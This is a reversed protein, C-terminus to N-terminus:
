PSIHHSTAPNAAPRRVEYFPQYHITADPFRTRIRGGYQGALRRILDFEWNRKEKKFWNSVFEAAIIARLRAETEPIAGPKKIIWDQEPKPKDLRVTRPLHVVSQQNGVTYFPRADDRRGLTFERGNFHAASVIEDVHEPDDSVVWWRHAEMKNNLDTIRKLAHNHVKGVPLPCYM